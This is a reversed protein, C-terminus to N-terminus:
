SNGHFGWFYWHSQYTTFSAISTVFVKLDKLYNKPTWRWNCYRLKGPEKGLHGSPKVWGCLNRVERPFHIGRRQTPQCGSFPRCPHSSDVRGTIISQLWAWFFRNFFHSKVRGLVSPNRPSFILIESIQGRFIINPLLWQNSSIKEESPRQLALLTIDVNEHRQFYYNWIAM